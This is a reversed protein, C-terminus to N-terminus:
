MKLYKEIEEDIIKLLENKGYLRPKEDEDIYGCPECTYKEFEEKSFGISESIKRSFNIAAGIVCCSDNM